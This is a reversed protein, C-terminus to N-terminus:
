MDDLEEDEDDAVDGPIYFMDREKGIEIIHLHRPRLNVHHMGARHKEIARLVFALLLVGAIIFWVMMPNNM